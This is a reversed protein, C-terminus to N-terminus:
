KKLSDFMKISVDIRAHFTAILDNAGALKFYIEFVFWEM